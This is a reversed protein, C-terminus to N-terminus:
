YLNFIFIFNDIFKEKITKLKDFSIFMLYNWQDERTVWTRQVIANEVMESLRLCYFSLPDTYWEIGYASSFGEIRM